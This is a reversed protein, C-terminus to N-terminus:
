ELWCFGMTKLNRAIILYGQNTLLGTQLMLLWPFLDITSQLLLVQVDEFRSMGQFITVVYNTKADEKHVQTLINLPLVYLMIRVMNTVIRWLVEMVDMIEM